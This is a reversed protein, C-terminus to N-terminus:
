LAAEGAGGTRIRTVAEISLVFVVGDGPSGTRAVKCNTSVVPDVLADPVVVELKMKPLLDITYTAGHRRVTRERQHGCGRVDTVTMGGVGFATVAEKVADLRSPRIVAEIAKM